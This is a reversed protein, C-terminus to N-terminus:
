KNSFDMVDVEQSVKSYIDFYKELEVIDHTGNLEVTNIEGRLWEDNLRLFEERKEDTLEPTLEVVRKVFEDRQKTIFNTCSEKVYASFKPHQNM